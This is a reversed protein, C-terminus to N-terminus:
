NKRDPSTHSLNSSAFPFEGGSGKAPHNSIMTGDPTFVEEALRMGGFDSCDDLSMFLSELLHKTDESLPPTPWTTLEVTYGM